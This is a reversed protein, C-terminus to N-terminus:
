KLRRENLRELQDDMKLNEYSTEHRKTRLGPQVAEVGSDTVKFHTRARKALSWFALGILMLIGISSILPFNFYNLLPVAVIFALLALWTVTAVGFYSKVVRPKQTEMDSLFAYRTGAGFRPDCM